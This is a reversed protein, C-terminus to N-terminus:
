LCLFTCYVDTCWSMMLCLPQLFSYKNEWKFAIKNTFLFNGLLSIDMQNNNIWTIIVPRVIVQTYNLQNRSEALKLWHLDADKWDYLCIVDCGHYILCMSNVDLFWLPSYSWLNLSLNRVSINNLTNDLSHKSRSRETVSTLVTKTYWHRHLPSVAPRDSSNNSRSVAAHPRLGGEWGVGVSSCLSLSLICLDIFSFLQM